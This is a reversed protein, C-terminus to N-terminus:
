WQERAKAREAMLKRCKDKDEDVLRLLDEREGEDLM